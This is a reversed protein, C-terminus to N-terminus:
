LEKLLRKLWIFHCVCTTTAVYEAECTSLTVISQKKLSWTFTTHGIYFVFGTTSKGDDMDRVWDSNSYGVLEFSNSYGYFLGFDIPGKIYWLIRKM